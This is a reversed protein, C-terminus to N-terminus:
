IDGTPQYLSAPLSTPPSFEFGQPLSMCPHWLEEAAHIKAEQIAPLDKM